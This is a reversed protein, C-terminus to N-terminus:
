FILSFDEMDLPFEELIMNWDPVAVESGSQVAQGNTGQMEMRQGENWQVGGSEREVQQMLLFARERLTTLVTWKLGNLPKDERSKFNEHQLEVAAFARKALEGRPCVCLHRLIFLMIHYQPYSRALWQYAVLDDDQWMLNSLELLEVAETLEAETAMPPQDDPSRLIQWQRRSVVDVKCLILRATRITMRQEPIVPNCRQLIGEVKDVADKIVRRRVGEDPIGDASCSMHFLHAWAQSSQNCCLQLTMRTWDPRSPPLEKMGPSLDSDHLNRPLEVGHVTTATPNQLGYDEAGRGDREQFYWWIRRRMESEFPSLGLKSGDRHLGISQAARLALGNMIWVARCSNHVRMAAGYIAMAQLSAITPNELFDSQAMSQELCMRYRLLAQKKDEGTIDLADDSPTATIAAFYIAFCLALNENSAKTPDGIVTYLTTEATPIHLVKVYPDVGDVFVKWLRIAVRRQPHYIATSVSAIGASLWGIPNMHCIPSDVEHPPPERPTALAMRVDDEQEIVRSFLVENVYHSSTGKNLLLGERSGRARERTEADTATSAPTPVSNASTVSGASVTPQPSVDQGAKFAEITKEMQSIRSAVDNITTKKARRAPPGAPPYSCEFGSRVCQSCPFNKDCRVKRRHCVACSRTRPRSSM